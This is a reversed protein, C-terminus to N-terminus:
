GREYSGLGFIPLSGQVLLINSASSVRALQSGSPATRSVGVGPRIGDAEVMRGHQHQNGLVEDPLQGGGLGSAVGVWM